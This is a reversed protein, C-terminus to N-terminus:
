RGPGGPTLRPTQHISPANNNSATNDNSNDPSNNAQNTSENAKALTSPFGAEVAKADLKTAVQNQFDARHEKDPISFSISGNKMEAKYNTTNVGQKTLASKFDNFDQNVSSLLGGLKEQNSPTLENFDEKSVGITIPPPGLYQELDEQPTQKKDKMGFLLRIIAEILEMLAVAANKDQDEKKQKEADQDAQARADQKIDDEPIFGVKPKPATATPSPSGATISPATNTPAPTTNPTSKTITSTEQQIEKMLEPVPM